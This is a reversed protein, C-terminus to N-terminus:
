SRRSINKEMGIHRIGEVMRETVSRFGERRYFALGKENDAEVELRLLDCEPHHGVAAELLRRGIGRRQHDPLVYLRAVVLVPLRDANALIHGVIRRGAEAVLFSTGPMAIQRSLNEISHWSNTIETVKAAGILVDYTDHWTTVLLASVPEVDAPVALRIRIPQTRTGQKM